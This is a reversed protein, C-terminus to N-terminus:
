MADSRDYLTFISILKGKAAFTANPVQLVLCIGANTNAMRQVFSIPRPRPRPRPRPGPRPRPPQDVSHHTAERVLVTFKALIRWIFVFM